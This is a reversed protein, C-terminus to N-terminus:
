IEIETDTGSEEQLGLWSGHRANDIYIYIQTCILCWRWFGGLYIYIYLQQRIDSNNQEREIRVPARGSGRRSTCGSSSAVLVVLFYIFLFLWFWCWWDLLLTTHLTLTDLDFDFDFDFDFDLDRSKALNALVAALWALVACLIYQWIISSTTHKFFLWFSILDKQTSM